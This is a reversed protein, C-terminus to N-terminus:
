REKDDSLAEAFMSEDYITISMLAEGDVIEAGLHAISYDFYKEPVTYRDFCGIFEVETGADKRIDYSRLM